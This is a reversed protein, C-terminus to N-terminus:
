IKTITNFVKRRVMKKKKDKKGMARKGLDTQPGNGSAWDIIHPNDVGVVNAMSLGCENLVEDFKM